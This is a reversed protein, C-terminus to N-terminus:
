KILNNWVLPETYFGDHGSGKFSTYKLLNSVSNMEEQFSEKPVYCDMDGSYLYFPKSPNQELSTKFQAVSIHSTPLAQIAAEVDAGLDEEPLQTVNLCEHILLSDITSGRSVIRKFTEGCTTYFNRDVFTIVASALEKNYNPIEGSFEYISLFEKYATENFGNEDWMYNIWMHMNSWKPTWGLFSILNSVPGYGCAKKKTQADHYCKTAPLAKLLSEIKEKDGQYQTFYSELIRKQSLLRNAFREVPDSTIVNAHAHASLVGQPAEIFYRHVIHAGYSQGFVKWPQSGLLKQRVTESDLIIEHSGYNALRRIVDQSKGEPYPDSCGTGRQDIYIFSTNKDWKQFGSKTKTLVAYSSHSNGGPGGNFFAIPTQGQEIKGYYFVKIKFGNPNSYDEPVLVWDKIFDSPLTKLFSLCQQEYEAPGDPILEGPRPFQGVSLAQQVNYKQGPTLTKVSESSNKECAATILLNIFLVFFAASKSYNKM